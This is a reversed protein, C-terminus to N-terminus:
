LILILNGGGGGGGGGCGGGMVLLTVMCLCRNINVCELNCVISCVAENQQKTKMAAMAEKCNMANEVTAVEFSEPSIHSILSSLRPNRCNLFM